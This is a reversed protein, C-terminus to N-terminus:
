LFYLWIWCIEEQPTFSITEVKHEMLKAWLWMSVMGICVQHNQERYCSLSQPLCMSLHLIDFCNFHSSNNNTGLSLHFYKFWFTIISSNYAGLSSIRLCNNLNKPRSSLLRSSLYGGAEWRNQLKLNLISLYLFPLPSVWPASGETFPQLSTGPLPCQVKRTHSLQKRRVSIIQAITGWEKREEPPLFESNSHGESLQSTSAQGLRTDTRCCTM